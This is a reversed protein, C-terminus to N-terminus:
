GTGRRKERAAQADRLKKMTEDPLALKKARERFPDAIIPTIMLAGKAIEKQMREVLEKDQQQQLGKQFPFLAVILERFPGAVANGNAFGQAMLKWKALEFEQRRLWVSLFLAEKLSGAKPPRDAKDYLVNARAWGEATDIWKGTGRRRAHASPV